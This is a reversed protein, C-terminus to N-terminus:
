EPIVFFSNSSFIFFKLGGSAMEYKSIFYKSISNKNPELMPILGASTKAM